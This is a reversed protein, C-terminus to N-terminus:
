RRPPSISSPFSRSVCKWVRHWGFSMLDNMRDYSEAVSTFVEAVRHQKEAEPVTEFGFHTTSSGPSTAHQQTSPPSSTPTSSSIARTTLTLRPSVSCRTCSQVARRLIPPRAAMNVSASSPQQQLPGRSFTLRACPQSFICHSATHSQQSCHPQHEAEHTPPLRPQGQFRQAKFRLQHGNGNGQQPIIPPAVTRKEGSMSSWNPSIIYQPILYNVSAYEGPRFWRLARQREQKRGSTQRLRLAGVASSPMTCRSLSSVLCPSSSSSSPAVTTWTGATTRLFPRPARSNATIFRVHHALTQGATSFSSSQPAFITPLSPQLFPTTQSSLLTPLQHQIEKPDLPAYFSRHPTLRPVPSTFTSVLTVPLKCALGLAVLGDSNRRSRSVIWEKQTTAM